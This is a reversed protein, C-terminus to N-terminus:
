FIAPNLKWDTRDTVMRSEADAVTNQSGPLYQATIHINRELCWMWLNRILYVLDSSITDGLNNIYAVATTNDIRLLISIKSKHKAFSKVALTAAVTGSLQHANNSGPKIMSGRNIPSLLLSGMRHSLCGFQHDPRDREKSSDQWEVQVHPHEVLEARRPMRNTPNNYGRLKPQEEGIHQISDDTLPSLLPSSSSDRMSNFENEGVATRLQPSFHKEGENTESGGSSNTKNETTPSEAGYQNLQSHPWSVRHCSRTEDSIEGQQHHVRPMGAPLVIRGSPQTITRKFRSPDSHRRYLRDISSRNGTPFGPCTETNQYLGVPSLVTWISPLHLSIDQRSCSVQPLRQIDPSHSDGSLCGQPRNKSALGRAAPPGEFHSHGGDQFTRPSCVSQSSQPQDSAETGWEKQPGPLHKSYFGVESPHQLLRIAQKCILTHLSQKSSYHPPTPLSQQHPESMFDIWYGQVTDLVWRDRTIASWNQIHHGLRGTLPLDTRQIPTVGHRKINCALTSKFNMILHNYECVHTNVQDM